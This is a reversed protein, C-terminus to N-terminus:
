VNQFNRDIRHVLTHAHTPMTWSCWMHTHGQAVAWKECQNVLRTALGRRQFAPEVAVYAIRAAKGGQLEVGDVSVPFSGVIVGSRLAGCVLQLRLDGSIKQRLGIKPTGDM